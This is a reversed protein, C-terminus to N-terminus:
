ASATPTMIPPTSCSATCHIAKARSPRVGRKEKRKRWAQVSGVTCRMRLCIAGAVSPTDTACIERSILVLIAM